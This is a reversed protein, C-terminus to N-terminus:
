FLAGIMESVRQKEEETPPIWEESHNEIQKTGSLSAEIERLMAKRFEFRENCANKIENLSPFFKKEARMDRCVSLIVDEPYDCLDISYVAIMAKFDIDEDKKRAMVLTMAYLERKIIEQRCPACWNM